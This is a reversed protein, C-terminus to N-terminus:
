YGRYLNNNLFFKETEGRIKNGFEEITKVKPYIYNQTKRDVSFIKKKLGTIM